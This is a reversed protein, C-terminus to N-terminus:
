SSPSSDGADPEDQRRDPAFLALLRQPDRIRRFGRPQTGVKFVKGEHTTLTADVQGFDVTGLSSGFWDARLVPAEDIPFAISYRGLEGMVGRRGRTPAARVEFRTARRQRYQLSLVGLILGLPFFPCILAWGTQGTYIAAVGLIAWFVALLTLTMGTGIARCGATVVGAVAGYGAALGAAWEWELTRLGFGGLVVAFTLGFAALAAKLDPGRLGVEPRGRWLVEGHEGPPLLLEDSM